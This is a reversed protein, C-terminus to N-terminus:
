QVVPRKKISPRSLIIVKSLIRNSVIDTMFKQYNVKNHQRMKIPLGEFSVHKRRFFPHEDSFPVLPAVGGFAAGHRANFFRPATFSVSKGAKVARSATYGSSHYVTFDTLGNRIVIIIFTSTNRTTQPM